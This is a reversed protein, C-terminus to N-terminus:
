EFDPEVALSTISPGRINAHQASTFSLRVRMLVECSFQTSGSRRRVAVFARSRWPQEAPNRRHVCLQRSRMLSPGCRFPEILRSHPAAPSVPFRHSTPSTRVFVVISRVPPMSRFRHGVNPASRGARAQWKSQARPPTKKSLYRSHHIDEKKNINQSKEQEGGESSSSTRNSPIRCHMCDGALLFKIALMKPHSTPETTELSM